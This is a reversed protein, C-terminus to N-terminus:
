KRFFKRSEKSHMLLMMEMLKRQSYAEVLREYGTEGLSSASSESLNTTTTQYFTPWAPSDLSESRRYPQSINMKVAPDEDIHTDESWGRRKCQFYVQHDTFMICRKSLLREQFTWGRQNWVLGSM